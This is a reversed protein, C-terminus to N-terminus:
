KSEKFFEAPTFWKDEIIHGIAHVRDHTYRVRIYKGVLEEWADVDVTELIRRIFLISSAHGEKGGFQDLSYGGFGQGSGGYDLHIMCTMTGHDEIGLMTSEIRANSERIESM